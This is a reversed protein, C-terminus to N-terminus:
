LSVETSREWLANFVANLDSLVDGVVDGGFLVLAEHKERDSEFRYGRQDVLMFNFEYSEVAEKPVRRVSLNPNAAALQIVPHDDPVDSEVLVDLKGDRELFSEAEDLFWRQSYLVPDLMNSLLRVREKAFAFATCIIVTAHQIDKNYNNFEEGNELARRFTRAYDNISDM